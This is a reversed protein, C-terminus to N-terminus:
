IDQFTIMSAAIRIFCYKVKVKKQQASFGKGVRNLISQLDRMTSYQQCFKSEIKKDVHKIETLLPKTTRKPVPQDSAENHWFFKSM